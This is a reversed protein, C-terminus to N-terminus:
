KVNLYTNRKQDLRHYFVCPELQTWKQYTIEISITVDGFATRSLLFPNVDVKIVHNTYSDPLSYTM